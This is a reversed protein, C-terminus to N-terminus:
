PVGAYCACNKLSTIARSAACGCTEDADAAIPRGIDPNL